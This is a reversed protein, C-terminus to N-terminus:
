KRKIGMWEVFYLGHTKARYEPNWYLLAVCECALARCILAVFSTPPARKMVFSGFKILFCFSPPFLIGNSCDTPPIPPATTLQGDFTVPPGTGDPADTTSSSSLLLGSSPRLFDGM